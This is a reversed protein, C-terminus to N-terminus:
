PELNLGEEPAPPVWVGMATLTAAIRQRVSRFVEWAQDTDTYQDLECERDFRDIAHIARLVPHADAPVPQVDAPFGDQPSPPVDVGDAKLAAEAYRRVTRFVAWAQETDTYQAEECDSDFSDIEAVAQLLSASIDTSTDNPM